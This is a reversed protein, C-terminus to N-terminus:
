TGSPTKEFRNSCFAMWTWLAFKTRRTFVSVLGYRSHTNWREVGIQVITRTSKNITDWTCYRHNRQLFRCKLGTTVLPLWRYLIVQCRMAERRCEAFHINM